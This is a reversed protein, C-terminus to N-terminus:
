LGYTKYKMEVFLLVENSHNVWFNVKKPLFRTATVVPGGFGRALWNTTDIYTDDNQLVQWISFKDQM